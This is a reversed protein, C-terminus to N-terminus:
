GPLSHFCLDMNVEAELHSPTGCQLSLAGSGRSGLPEERWAEGQKQIPM